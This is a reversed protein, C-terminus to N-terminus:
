DQNNEQFPYERDTKLGGAVDDLEEDELENNSPYHQQGKNNEITSILKKKLEEKAKSGRSFDVAMLKKALRLIDRYEDDPLLAIKKEGIERLVELDSRFIKILLEENKGTDM